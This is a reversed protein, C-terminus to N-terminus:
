CDAPEHSFPILSESEVERPELKKYANWFIQTWQEINKQEFGFIPHELEIVLLHGRELKNSTWYFPTWCM